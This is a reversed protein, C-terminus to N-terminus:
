SGVGGDPAGPPPAGPSAPRGGGVRVTRTSRTDLAMDDPDPSPPAHAPPPPYGPVAAAPAAAPPAPAAPAPDPAGAGGGPRLVRVTRTSRTDLAMEDSKAVRPRIRVTGERADEVDVVKRLLQVTGEHGSEVAMKTARGLRFTATREDGEKLAALGLQIDEALAAQGTYHAVERNVRASAIEDETWIARVLGPGVIEDDMVLSVRAALMEVGVDSPPVSISLHYDRAEAGWAGLPYQRTRQDVQTEYGTLDEINPSVQRMFNVRADLPCWVRLASAAVGRGMSREMLRRFEAPLLEPEPIIDVSGQLTSAIGRLEDVVWDTGIGRCDAQFVGACKGLAEDLRWRDERNEGDTLLIAHRIDAPSATFLDHAAQLWTSMATGGGVQMRRVAERATARSNADAEVLGAGWVPFITTARETGSLVAFLVGDRIADIAECAAQRAARIRGPPTEMSGSTDLILIEAARGSGSPTWGGATVTVIADITTAGQSLYENQFVELAYETM